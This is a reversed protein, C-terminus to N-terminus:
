LGAEKKAKYFAAVTATGQRELALLIPKAGDWIAAKASPEAAADMAVRVAELAAGQCDNMAFLRAAAVTFDPASV